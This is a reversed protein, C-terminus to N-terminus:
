VPADVNMNLRVVLMPSSRLYAGGDDNGAWVRTAGGFAHHLIKHKCIM